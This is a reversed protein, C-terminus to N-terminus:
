AIVAEGERVCAEIFDLKTRRVDEWVEAEAEARKAKIENILQRLGKKLLTDYDPCKHSMQISCLGLEETLIYMPLACRVVTDDITCSGVILDYPEIKIPMEKLLKEFSLSRRIVASRKASEETIVSLNGGWMRQKQHMRRTLTDFHLQIKDTMTRLQLNTRAENMTCEM